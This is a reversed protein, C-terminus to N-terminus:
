KRKYLMQLLLKLFLVGKKIRIFVSFLMLLGITDTRPCTSWPFLEISSAIRSDFMTSVSAPAIVWAIPALITGRLTISPV